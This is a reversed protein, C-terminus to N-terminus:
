IVNTNYTIASSTTVCTGRNGFRKVTKNFIDKALEGCCIRPYIRAERQRSPIVNVSNVNSESTDRLSRVLLSLTEHTMLTQM